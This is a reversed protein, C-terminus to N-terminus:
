WRSHQLGPSLSQEFFLHGHKITLRVGFRHNLAIIQESQIYLPYPGPGLKALMDESAKRILGEELADSFFVENFCFCLDWTDALEYGLKAKACRLIAKELQEDTIESRIPFAEPHVNKPESWGGAELGVFGVPEWGSALKELVKSYAEVEAREHYEHSNRPMIPRGMRLTSETLCEGDKLIVNLHWNLNSARHATYNVDLYAKEGEIVNYDYLGACRGEVWVFPEAVEATDSNRATIKVYGKNVFLCKPVWGNKKLVDSWASVIRIVRRREAPYSDHRVIVSTMISPPAISAASKSLPKLEFLAPPQPMQTGLPGDMAPTCRLGESVVARRVLEQNPNPWHQWVIADLRKVGIWGVFYSVDEMHITLSQAYERVQKMEIVKEAPYADQFQDILMGHKGCLWIGNDIHRIQDSSLGPQKRPGDESAPYIHAAVAMGAASDEGDDNVTPGTTHILCDAFSCLFGARKALELKTSQLFNIRRSKKKPETVSTM